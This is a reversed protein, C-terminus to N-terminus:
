WFNQYQERNIRSFSDIYQLIIIIPFCVNGRFIKFKSITQRKRILGPDVAIAMSNGLRLDRPRGLKLYPLSLRSGKFITFELPVRIYVAFKFGIFNKRIMSIVGAAPCINWVCDDSDLFNIFQARSQPLFDIEGCRQQSAPDGLHIIDIAIGRVTGDDQIIVAFPHADPIRAFLPRSDYNFFVIFIPMQYELLCHVVTM